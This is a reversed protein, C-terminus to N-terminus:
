EGTQALRTYCNSLNERVSKRGAVRQRSPSAIAQPNGPHVSSPLQHRLIQAVQAEENETIEKSKGEVKKM